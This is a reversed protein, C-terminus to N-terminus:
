PALVTGRDVGVTTGNVGAAFPSILMAVAGAVDASSNAGPLSPGYRNPVAHGDAPTFGWEEIPLLVCNVRIGEAGWARAASKVILRIGESASAFPVLGAAGTLAISPVAAVIAGGRGGFSEYAAQVAYFASRIPAEAVRDWTADDTEALPLDELEGAVSAVVVVADPTGHGAFATAAEERSAPAAVVNVEAGLEALGAALKATLPGTGIVLATTGDFRM